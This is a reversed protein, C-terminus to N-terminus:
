VTIYFNTEIGNYAFTIKYTGSASNNVDVTYVDKINDYSVSIDSSIVGSKTVTYTVKKADIVGGEPESVLTVDISSNKSASVINTEEGDVQIHMGNIYNSVVFTVPEYSSERINVYRTDWYNCRVGFNIVTGATLNQAWVSIKKNDKKITITEDTYTDGFSLLETRSGDSELKFTYIEVVGKDIGKDYSFDLSLVEGLYLETKSDVTLTQNYALGIASVELYIFQLGSSAGTYQHVFEVYICDGTTFDPQIKFYYYSGGAKSVMLKNNYVYQQASSFDSAKVQVGDFYLDYENINFAGVSTFNLDYGIQPQCYVFDAGNGHELYVVNNNSSNNGTYDLTTYGKTPEATLNFRVYAERNKLNVLLTVVQVADYGQTTNQYIEVDIEASTQIIDTKPVVVLAKREQDITVSDFIAENYGGEVSLNNMNADIPDLNFPIIHEFGDKKIDVATIPSTVGQEDQEVFTLTQVDVDKVTIQMSDYLSSKSAHRVVITTTGVGVAEVSLKEGDFNVTAISPDSSYAMLVDKSATEPYVSIGVETKGYEPNGIYLESYAGEVTIYKITTKNIANVVVVAIIVVVAVIGIILSLQKILSSKGKKKKTNKKGM